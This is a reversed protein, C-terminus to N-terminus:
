IVKATNTCQLQGGGGGLTDTRSEIHAEAYNVAHRHYNVGWTTQQVTESLNKNQQRKEMRVDSTSAADDRPREGFWVADPASKITLLNCCTVYVVM